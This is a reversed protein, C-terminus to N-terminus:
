GRVLGVEWPGRLGHRSSAGARVTGTARRARNRDTRFKPHHPCSALELHNQVQVLAARLKSADGEQHPRPFDFPFSPLPVLLDLVLFILPAGTLWHVRLRSIQAGFALYYRKPVRSRSGEAAARTRKHAPWEWVPSCSLWTGELLLSTTSTGARALHASHEARCCQAAFRPAGPGGARVKTM